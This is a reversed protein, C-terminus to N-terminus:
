AIKINTFISVIFGGDLDEIKYYLNISYVTKLKFIVDWFTTKM